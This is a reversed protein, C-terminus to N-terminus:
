GQRNSHLLSQVLPIFTGRRSLAYERRWLEQADLMPFFLKSIGLGQGDDVGSLSHPWAQTEFLNPLQRERQTSDIHRSHSVRQYFCDGSLLLWM